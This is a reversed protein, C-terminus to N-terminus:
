NIKLIALMTYVVLNCVLYKYSAPEEWDKRKWIKQSIQTRHNKEMNTSIWKDAKGYKSKKSSYVLVGLWESIDNFKDKHM